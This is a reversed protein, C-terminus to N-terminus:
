YRVACDAAYTTEYDNYEYTPKQIHIKESVAAMYIEMGGGKLQRCLYYHFHHVGELKTNCYVQNYLCGPM